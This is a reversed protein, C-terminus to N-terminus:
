TRACARTRTCMACRVDDQCVTAPQATVGSATRETRQDRPAAAQQQAPGRATGEVRWPREMGGMMEALCTHLRLARRARGTHAAMAGAAGVPAVPGWGPSGPGLSHSPTPQWTGHQGCNTCLWAQWWCLIACCSLEQMEPSCSAHHACSSSRPM